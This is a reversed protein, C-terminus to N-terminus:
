GLAGAAFAANGARLLGCTHASGDTQAAPKLVPGAKALTEAKSTIVPIEVRYSAASCSAIASTASACPYHQSSHM